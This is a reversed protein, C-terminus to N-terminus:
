ETPRGHFDLAYSPRLISFLYLCAHIRQDVNEFDTKVDDIFKSKVYYGKLKQMLCTVLYTWEHSSHIANGFEYLIIVSVHMRVSAGEVLSFELLEADCDKVLSEEEGVDKIFKVHYSSSGFVSKLFQKVDLDHPGLCILLLM